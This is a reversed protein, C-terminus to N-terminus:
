ERLTKAQRGNCTVLLANFSAYSQTCYALNDNSTTVLVFNNENEHSLYTKVRKQFFFRGRRLIITWEGATNSRRRRSELRRQRRRHSSSGLFWVVILYAAIPCVIFIEKRSQRSKGRSNYSGLRSWATDPRWDRSKWCACCWTERNATYSQLLMIMLSTIIYVSMVGRIVERSVEKLTAGSREIVDNCWERLQVRM